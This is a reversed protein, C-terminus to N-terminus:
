PALFNGVGIVFTSLILVAIGVWVLVFTRKGVGKWERFWIGWLNSFVIILAM